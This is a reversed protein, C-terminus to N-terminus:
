NILDNIERIINTNYKIVGEHKTFVYGKKNIMITTPIGRLKLFNLIKMQPDFLPILEKINKNKLFSEQEDINKKDISIIYFKIKDKDLLKTIKEIEPLEKKCPLCWTAWFNLLYFKNKLFVEKVKVNKKNKDLIEFNNLLIPNIKKFIKEESLASFSSLLFITVLIVLFNALRFM